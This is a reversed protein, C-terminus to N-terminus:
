SIFVDDGRTLAGCLTRRWARMEGIAVGMEGLAVGMEGIAVVKNSRDEGEKWLRGEVVEFLEHVAQAGRM